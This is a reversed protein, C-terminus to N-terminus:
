TLKAKVFCDPCSKFTAGNSHCLESNFLILDIDSIITCQGTIMLTFTAYNKLGKMFKLGGCDKAKV